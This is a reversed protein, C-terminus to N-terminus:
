GNKVEGETRTAAYSPVVERSVEWRTETGGCVLAITEPWGNLPMRKALHEAADETMSHYLSRHTEFEVADEITEGLAPLYYKPM